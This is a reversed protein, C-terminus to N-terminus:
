MLAPQFHEDTIFVGSWEYYLLVLQASYILYYGCIMKCFVCANCSFNNVFIILLGLLSAQTESLCLTYNFSFRLHKLQDLIMITYHTEGFFSTDHIRV